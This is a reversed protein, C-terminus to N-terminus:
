FPLDNDDDSSTVDATPAGKLLYQITALKNADIQDEHGGVVSNMFESVDADEIIMRVQTNGIAAAIIANREAKDFSQYRNLKAIVSHTTAFSGSEDLDRILLEKELDVALLSAPFYVKFFSALRRYFVVNAQKTTTWEEILFSDFEDEALPSAYDKDDSIFILDEKSEITALLSEWIIADGLSGAKGPPDGIDARRRAREVIEPTTAIPSASKFLEAIAVDAALQTEAIDAVVSAELSALRKNMEGELQRLKKFEPYDRCFQPFQLSVKQERLRRLADAIKNERNRRFETKTQEPLYLRAKKQKLLTRLKDLEELQDSTFHYLSLFINTDIYLHFM